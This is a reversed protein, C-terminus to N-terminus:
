IQFENLREPNNGDLQQKDNRTQSREVQNRIYKQRTSAIDPITTSENLSQQYISTWIESSRKANMHFSARNM